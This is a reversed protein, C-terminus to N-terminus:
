LYLLLTVCADEYYMVQAEMVWNLWVFSVVGCFFVYHSRVVRQQLRKLAAGFVVAINPSVFSLGTPSPIEGSSLHPATLPNNKWPAPSSSTFLRSSLSSLSRAPTTTTDPPPRASLSWRWLAPAKGEPSFAFIM